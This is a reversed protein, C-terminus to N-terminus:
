RVGFLSGLHGRRNSPQLHSVKQALRSGGEAGFGAMFLCKTWSCVAGAWLWSPFLRDPTTLPLRSGKRKAPTEGTGPCGLMVM